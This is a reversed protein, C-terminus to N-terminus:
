ATKQKYPMVDALIANAVTDKCCQKKQQRHVKSDNKKEVRKKKYESRYSKTAVTKGCYQCYDIAGEKMIPLGNYDDIFENVRGDKSGVKILKNIKLCLKYLNEDIDIDSNLEDFIMTIEKKIKNYSLDFQKDFTEDCNGKLGNVLLDSNLLNTFCKLIEPELINNKNYSVEKYTQNISSKLIIFLEGFQLLFDIYSEDYKGSNLQDLSYDSINVKEEDKLQIDNILNNESRIFNWNFYWADESRKGMSEDSRNWKQYARQKALTNYIDNFYTLNKAVAIRKTLIKHYSKDKPVIYHDYAQRGYSDSNEVYILVKEKDVTAPLYSNYNEALVQNYIYDNGANDGKITKSKIYKGFGKSYIYQKSM